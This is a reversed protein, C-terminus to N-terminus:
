IDIAYKCVYKDPYNYCKDSRIQIILVHTQLAEHRTNLKKVSLNFM